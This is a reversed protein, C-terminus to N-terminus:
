GTGSHARMARQYALPAITRTIPALLPLWAANIEMKRGGMRQAVLNAVGEATRRVLRPPLDGDEGEDPLGMATPVWGPYLVHVHM